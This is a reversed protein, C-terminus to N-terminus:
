ISAPRTHKSLCSRSSRARSASRTRSSSFSLTAARIRTGATRPRPRRSAGRHGAPTPQSAVLRDTLDHQRLSPGCIVFRDLAAQVEGEFDTLDEGVSRALEEIEELTGTMEQKGKLDSYKVRAGLKRAELEAKVMDMAAASGGLTHDLLKEFPLAHASMYEAFDAHQVLVEIPVRRSGSASVVPVEGSATRLPACSLNALAIAGLLLLMGFGFRKLTSARAASRRMTIYLEYVFPGLPAGLQRLQSLRVCAADKMSRQVEDIYSKTRLLDTTLYGRADLPAILHRLQSLRVYAADKMSQQVEGIYSKTRLLNTTLYGRANHENAKRTVDVAAKVDVSSPPSTTSGPATDCTKNGEPVVTTLAPRNLVTETDATSGALMFTRWASACLSFTGTEGVGLGYTAKEEVCLEPGSLCADSGPVQDKGTPDEVFVDPSYPAILQM